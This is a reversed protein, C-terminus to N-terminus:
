APSATPPPRSREQEAEMRTVYRALQDRNYRALIQRPQQCHPCRLWRPTEPQDTSPATNITPPQQPQADMLTQRLERLKHRHSRSWFGFYRVKHFHRPLVHQLFRRLFEPGSLKMTLWSKREKDRYQFTVHTKSVDTIRRDSLAVRHVYRALYGLVVDTGHQPKDIHVVWPTRFVSRPMPVKPLARQFAAMLKTRFTTAFVQHPALWPRNVEHWQGTPSLFGAPILCHVHPHFELTRTWTHLVMMAGITGGLHRPDASVELLTKGVINLIVPYLARQHRRIIRRLQEPVTFVVHFYPVPLIELRRAELWDQGQAASCKPCARHSCSHYAFDLTGCPDCRLLHGGRAPTRCELMATMAHQHAWPM